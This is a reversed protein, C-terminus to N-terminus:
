VSQDLIVKQIDPKPYNPPKVWKGYENVHGGPGFKGLNNEDVAELFPTDALGFSSFTGITVVSLDALEKAVEELRVAYSPFRVINLDDFSLHLNGSRIFRDADTHVYLEFGLAQITELAEELILKARLLKVTDAPMHPKSPVPHGAKRMMDDVRRQHESKLKM